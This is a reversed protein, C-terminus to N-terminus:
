SSHKNEVPSDACIIRNRGGHKARYLQTDAQSLREDLFQPSIHDLPMSPQYYAIGFSASCAISQGNFQLLRDAIASRLREATDLAQKADAKPLLVAFEEGGLRALLDTDRLNKQCITSIHILAADGAAYGYTDNIQKFHDMNLM